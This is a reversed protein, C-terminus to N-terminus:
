RDKTEENKDKDATERDETMKGNMLMISCEDRM